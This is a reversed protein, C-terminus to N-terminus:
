NAKTLYYENFAEKMCSFFQYSSYAVSLSINKCSHLLFKVQLVIIPALEQVTKASKTYQIAQIAHFFGMHLINFDLSRPPECILRIGFGGQERSLLQLRSMCQRSCHLNTQSYGRRVMKARIALLVREIMFERVVDRKIHAIPKVEWTGTQGNVSSRKAREDIVLSFCGIKGDFICVGGDFM